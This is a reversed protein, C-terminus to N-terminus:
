YARPNVRPLPAQPQHHRRAETSSFHRNRDTRYLLKDFYGRIKYWHILVMDQLSLPLKPEWSESECPGSNPSPGGYLEPEGPYQNWFAPSCHPGICFRQDLDQGFSIKKSSEIPANSFYLSRYAPFDLSAMKKIMLSLAKTCLMHQESNMEMWKYHLQAGEVHEQIIYEAGVPNSSTDKWDLIKPIPLGLKSQM